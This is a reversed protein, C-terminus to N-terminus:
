SSINLTTAFTIYMLWLGTPIHSLGLLREAPRVRAVAPAPAGQDALRRRVGTAIGAALDSVYVGALGALVVGVPWSDAEFFGVVVPAFTTTAFTVQVTDGKM